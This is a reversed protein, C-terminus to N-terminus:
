QYLQADEECFWCKSEKAIFASAFNINTKLTNEDWINNWNDALIVKIEEVRCRREGSSYLGDEVPIMKRYMDSLKDHYKLILEVLETGNIGSLSQITSEKIASDQSKVQVMIITNCIEGEM